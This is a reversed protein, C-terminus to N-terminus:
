VAPSDGDQKKRRNWARVAEAGDGYGMHHRVEADAVWAISILSRLAQFAARQPYLPSESWAALLARRSAAPARSFPRPRAPGQVVHALEFLAFLARLQTREPAPAAALYGDVYDVVRAMASGVPIPGEVPFLTEALAGVLHRERSTLVRAM